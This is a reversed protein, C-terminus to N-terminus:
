CAQEAWSHFSPVGPDCGIKMGAVQIVMIMPVLFHQQITSVEEAAQQQQEQAIAEAKVLQQKLEEIDDDRGALECKLGAVATEEAALKKRLLDCDM